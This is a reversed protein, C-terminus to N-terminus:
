RSLTQVQVHGGLPERAGRLRLLGPAPAPGLGGVPSSRLSGRVAGSRTLGRGNQAKIAEGGFPHRKAESRYQPQAWFDHGARPLSPTPARSTLTRM